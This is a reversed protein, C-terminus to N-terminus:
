KDTYKTNDIGNLCFFYCIKRKFKVYKNMNPRIPNNQLM